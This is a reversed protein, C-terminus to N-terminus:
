RQVRSIRYEREGDRHLSIVERSLGNTLANLASSHRQLRRNSASLAYDKRSLESCKQQLCSEADDLMRKWVYRYEVATFRRIETQSQLEKTERHM